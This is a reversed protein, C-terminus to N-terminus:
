TAAGIAADLALNRAEPQQQLLGLAMIILGTIALIIGVTYFGVRWWYQGSLLTSFIRNLNSAWDGIQAPMQPTPITPIRGELPNPIQVGNPFPNPIQFQPTGAVNAVAQQARPLQSQYSGNLYVSWDTFRGGRGSWLQYAYNTASQLERAASEPLNHAKLNIQWPGVSYEIASDNTAEYRGGSEALSIAVGTALQDDPFGANRMAQAIDEPSYTYSQM